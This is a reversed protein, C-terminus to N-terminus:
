KKQQGPKGGPGPTSAAREERAKRREKLIATEASQADVAHKALKPAMAIGRRVGAGQERGVYHELGEVQLSGGSEELLQYARPVVELSALNSPDVQDYTVALELALGLLDHFHAAMSNQDVKQELLWKTHRGDFTVGHRSTYECLWQVTREGMLPFDALEEETMEKIGSAFDLWRKGRSDYVLPGLLRADSREVVKAKVPSEEGDKLLAVSVFLDGSKHVGRNGFTMDGDQMPIVDGIEIEGATELAVWCEESFDTTRVMPLVEDGEPEGTPEGVKAPPLQRMTNMKPGGFAVAGLFAKTNMRKGDVALIQVPAAVGDGAADIIAKAGRVMSSFSSAGPYGQFRYFKGLVFGPADGDDSCSFAAIPEDDGGGCGLGEVYKDGDPTLCYWDGKVPDSPWLLLREHWLDDGEFLVGVTLGPLLSACWEKAGLAAGTHRRFRRNRPPPGSALVEKQPAMAPRKRLMEDVSALLGVSFGSM